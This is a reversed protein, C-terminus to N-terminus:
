AGCAGQAAGSKPSDDAQPLKWFYISSVNSYIFYLAIAWGVAAVVILVLQTTDM